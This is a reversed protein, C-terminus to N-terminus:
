LSRDAFDGILPYKYFEGNGAQVAAYITFIAMILAGIGLTLIGVIIAAVQWIVAQKGHFTVLDSRTGLINEQLGMILLPGIVPVVFLTLHELVSWVRPELPLQDAPVETLQESRRSEAPAEEAPTEAPPPRHTPQREQREDREPM